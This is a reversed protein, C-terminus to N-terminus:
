IKKYQKFWDSFNRGSTVAFMGMNYAERLDDENFLSQETIRAGAEYGQKLAEYNNTDIVHSDFHNYAFRDAAEQITLDKTEESKRRLFDNLQDRRIKAKVVDIAVDLAATLEKSSHKMEDSKGLRWVQHHELIEIAQELKM